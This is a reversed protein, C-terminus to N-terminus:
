KLVVHFGWPYQPKKTGHSFRHKLAIMVRPDGSRAAAAPIPNPEAISLGGPDREEDRLGIHPMGIALQVALITPV